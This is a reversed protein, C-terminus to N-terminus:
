SIKKFEEDKEDLFTEIMENEFLIVAGANEV